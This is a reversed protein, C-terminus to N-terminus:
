ELRFSPPISSGVRARDLVERREELCTGQGQAQDKRRRGQFRSKSRKGGHGEGMMAPSTKTHEGGRGVKLVGELHFSVEMRTRSATDARLRRPNEGVSGSLQSEM